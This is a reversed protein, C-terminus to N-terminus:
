IQRVDFDDTPLIGVPGDIGEQVELFEDDETIGFKSIAACRAHIEDAEVVNGVYGVNRSHVFVRWERMVPAM